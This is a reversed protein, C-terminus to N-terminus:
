KKKAVETKATTVTKATETKTVEVKKDATVKAKKSHKTEKAVVAKAPTTQANAMATTGLVLVALMFVKKSLSQLKNTKNEHIQSKM